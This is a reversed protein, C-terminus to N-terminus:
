ITKGFADIPCGLASIFEFKQISGSTNGDLYRQIAETFWDLPYGVGAYTNYVGAAAYRFVANQGGGKLAVAKSLTMDAASGLDLGTIALVEDQLNLGDLSSFGNTDTNNKWYGPTCAKKEEHASASPLALSLIAAAFVITIAAHIKRNM